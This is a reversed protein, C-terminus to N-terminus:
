LGFENPHNSVFRRLLESLNDPYAYFEKDLEYLEEEMAEELDDVMHHQRCEWNTWDIESSGVLELARPVIDACKFAGITQLATVAQPADGGWMNFFYQHFGGNNVDAELSWIVEFTKRFGSLEGEPLARIREAITMLVQESVM